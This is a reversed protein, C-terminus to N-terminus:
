SDNVSKRAFLFVTLSSFFYFNMVLSLKPTTRGDM